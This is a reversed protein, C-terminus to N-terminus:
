EWSGKKRPKVNGVLEKEKWDLCAQNAYFIGGQFVDARKSVYLESFISSVTFIHPEEWATEWVYEYFFDIAVWFVAM